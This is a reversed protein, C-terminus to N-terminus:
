AIEWMTRAQYEDLANSTLVVSAMVFVFAMGHWIFYPEAFTGFIALLMSTMLTFMGCKANSNPSSISRSRRLRVAAMGYWMFYCAFMISICLLILNHRYIMLVSAFLSCCYLFDARPELHKGLATEKRMRRALFGDFFDTSGLALAFFFTGVRFDTKWVLWLPNFGLYLSFPILPAWTLRFLTLLNPITLERM